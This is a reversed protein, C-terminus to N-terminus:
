GKGQEKLTKWAHNRLYVPLAQEAPVGGTKAFQVAGLRAVIAADTQLTDIVKQGEQVMLLPAGDGVLPINQPTPKEYDLLCEAEQSDPAAVALGTLAAPIPQMSGDEVAFAGLYVQQMRADHAAYCQTIQQQEFAAQALIQLSSVGVCPLDHAVALAQVVATNIRIGSFAGPGRNFVLATLQDLTVGAQHLARDVMPLIQQTQMRNGAQSENYLVGEVESVIAVSCQGFVTDLALFM